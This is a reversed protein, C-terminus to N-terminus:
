LGPVVKDVWNGLGSSAQNRLRGHYRIEQHTPVMAADQRPTVRQFPEQGALRTLSGPASRDPHNETRGDAVSACMREEEFLKRLRVMSKCKQNKATDTNKYHLIDCIEQMSKREYYFLEILKRSAGELKTMSREAAEYLCEDFHDDPQGAFHDRLSKEQL